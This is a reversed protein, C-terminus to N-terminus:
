CAVIGAYYCAGDDFDYIGVACRGPGVRERIIVKMNHLIEYRAHGAAEGNTFRGLDKGIEDALQSAAVFVDYNRQVAPSAKAFV